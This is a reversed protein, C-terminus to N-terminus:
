HFLNNKPTLLHPPHHLLLHHHHLLYNNLNSIITLLTTENKTNPHDLQLQQQLDKRQKMMLAGTKLNSVYSTWQTHNQGIDPTHNLNEEFELENEDIDFSQISDAYDRMQQLVEEFMDDNRHLLECLESFSSQNAIQNM